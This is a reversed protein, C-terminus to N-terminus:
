DVNNKMEDANDHVQGDYFPVFICFFDKWSSKKSDFLPPSGFFTVVRGIAGWSTRVLSFRRWELSRIETLAAARERGATFWSM